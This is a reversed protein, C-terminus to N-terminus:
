SVSLPFWGEGNQALAMLKNHKNFAQLLAKRKVDEQTNLHLIIFSTYMYEIGYGVTV